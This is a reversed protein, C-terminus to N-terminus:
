ALLVSPVGKLSPIAASDYDDLDQLTLLLIPSAIRNLEIKKGCSCACETIRSGRLVRITKGVPSAQTTPRSNRVKARLVRKLPESLAAHDDISDSALLLGKDIM